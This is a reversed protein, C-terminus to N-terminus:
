TIKMHSNVLIDYTGTIITQFKLTTGFPPSHLLEETTAALVYQNFHFPTIISYYYSIKHIETLYNQKNLEFKFIFLSWPLNPFKGNPLGSLLEGRTYRIMLGLGLVVM